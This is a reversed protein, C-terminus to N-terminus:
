IYQYILPQCLVQTVKIKLRYKKKCKKCEFERIELLFKDVIDMNANDCNPCQWYAHFENSNLKKEM